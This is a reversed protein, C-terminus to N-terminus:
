RLGAEAMAQDLSDRAYPDELRARIRELAVRDLAPLRVLARAARYRVWWERDALLKELRDAYEARGMRGVLQVAQMRVYWEPHRLLEDLRGVHALGTAVKLVAALLEPEHRSHVLEAVIADRVDFEAIEAYQLLYVAEDDGAARIHRYLPESVLASGALQLMRFVHTRPWDRRLALKPIVAQMARAPDICALAEAATISVLTNDDDTCALLENFSASDRLHGLAQIAALRTALHAHRAQERAFAVLDLRKALEILRVAAAGGIMNNTHNWLRLFENRERRPLDRPTATGVSGTMADAIIGRWRALSRAHRRERFRRVARLELTYLLLLVSAASSALTVWGAAAVAGSSASVFLLDQMTAAIFIAKSM